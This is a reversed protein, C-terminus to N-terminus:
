SLSYLVPTCSFDSYPEVILVKFYNMYLTTLDKLIVTLLLSLNISCKNHALLQEIQKAHLIVPLELLLGM